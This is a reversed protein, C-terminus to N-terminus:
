LATRGQARVKRWRERAIAALRAKAAASMKRRPIQAAAKPGANGKIRAWRARAAAAIRARSASSLKRKTQPAAVAAAPTSAGLVRVLETQLQDIREKIDAARRLQQPTLTISLANMSV